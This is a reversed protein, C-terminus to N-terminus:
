SNNEFRLIRCGSDIFLGQQRLRLSSNNVTFEGGVTLNGGQLVSKTCNKIVVNNTKIDGNVAFIGMDSNELTTNLLVSTGGNLLLGQQSHSLTCGEMIMSVLRTTLAYKPSNNIHVNILKVYNSSLVDITTEIRTGFRFQCLNYGCPLWTILGCNEFRLGRLTIDTAWGIYFGFSSLWLCQIVTENTRGVITFNSM